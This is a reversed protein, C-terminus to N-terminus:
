ADRPSEDHANLGALYGFVLAPGITGGGAWYSQGSAWGICNGAGYLGPIPEGAPTVVQAKSNVKPGGKTDLTGGGILLAYYPGTEAIPFMTPNPLTNDDQAPGNFALEIPQEGRHFDEDTGSQAFGNFRQVAAALNAGFDDSLLAGGTRPALTALREGLAAVLEDWTEGRMQAPDDISAAPIPYGGGFRDATRQDYIMILLINAFEGRVPDWVFHAQTRENYQIKENVVRHGHKNVMIMSDGPVLFVDSPTSSFNLAQELPVEAWFANAMNALEAGAAIGINVFDGENTPVACGGFIPGRLYNVRMEPNHTFGGSGFVVAKAARIALRAPGANPTAAPDAYVADEVAVEVGVVAGADNKVVAVVRHGTLIPIGQSEAHAQLQRIIETGAGQAGEATLPVLGRGRPAKDEPLQAYYDPYPQNDFAIWQTSVLAGLEKFLDVAVSGNDYYTELLGYTDDSLGYHADDASYLQPYAVRAMYRIADDKPDEVGAGTMISNNPIWYVGGSKATTGGVTTAKELMVVSSGLNHATTAAAFAAMGSGVVVIDVEQDWTGQASARSAAFPIAGVGFAAAGAGATLAAGAGAARLFTRRSVRFSPARRADDTQDHVTM